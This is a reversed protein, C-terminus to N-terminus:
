TSPSANRVVARASARAPKSMGTRIRCESACVGSLRKCLRHNVYLQLWMRGRRDRHVGGALGQRRRVRRSTGSSSTSSSARLYMYACVRIGECSLRGVVVGWNLVGRDLLLLVEGDDHMWAKTGTRGGSGAEVDWAGMWGARAAAESPPPQFNGHSAVGLLASLLPPRLSLVAKRRYM